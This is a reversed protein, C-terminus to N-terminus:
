KLLPVAGDLTVDLIMAFHILYMVEITYCLFNKHKKQQTFLSMLASWLCTQADPGAVQKDKLICM